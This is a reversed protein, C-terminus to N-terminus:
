RTLKSITKVVAFVYVKGKIFDAAFSKRAEKVQPM